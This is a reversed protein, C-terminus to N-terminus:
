QELYRCRSNTWTPWPFVRCKSAASIRINDPYRTISSNWVVRCLMVSLFRRTAKKTFRLPTQTKNTNGINSFSTANHSNHAISYVPREQNTTKISCRSKSFCYSSLLRTSEALLWVSTEFILGHMDLYLDKYPSVAFPENFWNYNIQYYRVVQIVTTIRSSICADLGSERLATNILNFGISAIAQHHNM